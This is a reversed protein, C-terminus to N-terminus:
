YEEENEFDVVNRKSRQSGTITGAANVGITSDALIATSEIEVSVIAPKIYKKMAKNGKKFFM